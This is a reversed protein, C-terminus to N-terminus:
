IKNCVFGHVLVDNFGTDNTFNNVIRRMNINFSRLVCFYICYHGCFYSAVSQLQKDNFTWHRCRSNMYDKFTKTPPRGFSDFYEGREGDTYIAVWHTGPLHSPDTNSIFLGHRHTPLQDSSYVGLFLPRYDKLEREIQESDM